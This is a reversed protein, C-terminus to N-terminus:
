EVATWSNDTNFTYIYFDGNEIRSGYTGHVGDTLTIPVLEGSFSSTFYTSTYLLNVGTKNIRSITPISLTWGYGAINTNATDSSNYNLYLSPTQGGRGPPLLINYSYSFAGSQDVTSVNSPSVTRRSDTYLASEDSNLAKVSQLPLISICLCVLLLSRISQTFRMPLINSIDLISKIVQLVNVTVM